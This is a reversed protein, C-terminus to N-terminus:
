SLKEDLKFQGLCAALIHLKNLALKVLSLKYYINEKEQNQFNMKSVVKYINKKM